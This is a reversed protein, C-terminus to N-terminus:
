EQSLPEFLSKTHPRRTLMIALNVTIIGGQEHIVNMRLQNSSVKSIQVKVKTIPGSRLGVPLETLHCNNEGFKLKTIEM